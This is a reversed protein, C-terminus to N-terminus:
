VDVYTISFLRVKAGDFIAPAQNRLYVVGWVYTTFWLNTNNNPQYRRILIPHPVPLLGVMTTSRLFNTVNAEDTVGRESCFREVHPLLHQLLRLCPELPLDSAFEKLWGESPPWARQKSSGEGLGSSSEGADGNNESSVAPAAPEARTAEAATKGSQDAEADSSDTAAGLRSLEEFTKRRHIIQYCFNANGEYQYQLVNNLMEMLLILLRHNEESACLVKAKSYHQVLQMIKSASTMCFSKVYSSMNSFVTLFPDFLPEIKNPGDIMLKALVIVILDGHNGEFKPLDTPLKAKFPANLAIAFNREGSLLLLIFACIHILGIKSPDKRGEFM